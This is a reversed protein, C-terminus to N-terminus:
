GSTRALAPPPALELVRFTGFGFVLNKAALRVRVEEESSGAARVARELEEAFGWAGLAEAQSRFALERLGARRAAERVRTFNVFASLDSEGPAALPTRVARHRRVAALTGRPHGALLEPEEAGYDVIVCRGATLHDAIERVIAEAAGSTEVIVGADEARPTARPVFPGEGPRASEAEVLVGDVIRVGLEHWRHGDWRWRQAPQADLLEHAVVVGAFPGLEALSAVATAREGSPGLRGGLEAVATARRPPSRDIAVYRFSGGPRREELVGALEALLRGDGCGLDAITFPGGVELAGPVELIARALTRAFLPSVSPATYFDGTPGFPTAPRSYYGVRDAYLAVDLFRDYPVFGDPEARRALAELLEARPAGEASAAAPSPM